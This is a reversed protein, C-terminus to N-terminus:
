LGPWGGSAGFVPCLVSPRGRSPRGGRGAPGHRPAQVGTVAALVAGAGPTGFPSPAAPLPPSLPDSGCHQRTCARNGVHPPQQSVSSPRGDGGPYKRQSTYKLSVQIGVIVASMVDHFDERWQGPSASTFSWQHILSFGQALAGRSTLGSRMFWSRSTCTPQFLSKPM